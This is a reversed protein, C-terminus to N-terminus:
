YKIDGPIDYERWRMNMCRAIKEEIQIVTKINADNSKTFFVAECIGCYVEYATCPHEGFVKKFHEVTEAILKKGFEQKKMFQIMVNVPHRVPIDYLRGLDLLRQKYCEFINEMNETFDEIGRSGMHRIKMAEGLILTHAGTVISYFINAGSAGVDSTTIRVYACLHGEMEKGHEKLLERYAKTLRSDAIRWTLTASYHDVYGYLFENDEYDNIYASAVMFLEPMPIVAYDKKDGSLVARIKGEFVRLLAYGKSVKLCENLIDALVTTPVDSLASGNVRARGKITGIATTGLPRIQDHYMICLNSNERTDALIDEIETGEVPTCLEGSISAEMVTLAKSPVRIWQARGEVEDLYEHFKVEDRFEKYFNDAYYM